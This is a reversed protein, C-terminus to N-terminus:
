IWKEKEEVGGGSWQKRKATKMIETFYLQGGSADVKEKKVATAVDRPGRSPYQKRFLKWQQFDALGFEVADKMMEVDTIQRMLRFLRDQRYTM